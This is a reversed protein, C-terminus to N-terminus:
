RKFIFLFILKLMMFVVIILYMSFVLIFFQGLCWEVDISLLHSEWHASITAGVYKILKRSPAMELILSGHRPYIFCIIYYFQLTGFGRFRFLRPPKLKTSTPFTTGASCVLCVALRASQQIFTHRYCMLVFLLDPYLGSMDLFMRSIGFYM